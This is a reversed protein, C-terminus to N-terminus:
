WPLLRAGGSTAEEWFDELRSREERTLPHQAAELNNCFQNLSRSGPIVCGVEEYSLTYSIAKHALSTGDVTLWGLQRVLAARRAIEEPTWRARVGDFRSQADYKGTLWGSDLPIKVITGAARERVMPFARRVDQHLINFLIELVDSQTHQLCAEVEHAFDLSAGYHRIKGQVRARELTEWLPDGGEYASVPPNHLLLVDLHDTALRRLSAELSEWFGTERFDKTGDPRRGFKSVLVVESRHGKLAEGLLRESHGGAYNPATDFLTVGRELAERVLRRAVTDAMPGWDNSSGLQWAGFGIESVELGTNGLKRRRM